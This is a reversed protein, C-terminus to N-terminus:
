SVFSVWVEQQQMVDGFRDVLEEGLLWSVAEPSYTIVRLILPQYFDLEDDDIEAV